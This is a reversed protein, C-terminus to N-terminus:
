WVSRGRLWVVSRALVGVVESGCRGVESCFRGVERDWVGVEMAVRCDVERGCAGVEKGCAGM